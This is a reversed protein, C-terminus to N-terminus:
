ITSSGSLVIEGRMIFSCGACVRATRIKKSKKGREVRMRRGDARQESEGTRNWEMHCGRGETVYIGGTAPISERPAPCQSPRPPSGSFVSATRCSAAQHEVGPPLACQSPFNDFKRDFQAPEQRVADTKEPPDGRGDWAGCGPFADRVCAAERRVYFRM